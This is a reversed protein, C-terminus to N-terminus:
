KKYQRRKPWVVNRRYDHGYHEIIARPDNLEKWAKKAKHFEKDTFIEPHRWFRDYNVIYYM